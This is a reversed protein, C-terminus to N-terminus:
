DLDTQGKELSGIEHTTAIIICCFVCCPFIVVRIAARVAMTNKQQQKNNSDDMATVRTNHFLSLSIIFLLFSCILKEM